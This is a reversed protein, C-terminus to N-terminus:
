DFVYQKINSYTSKCESSTLEIEEAHLEINIHQKTKLKSLLVITEVHSAWPFLDAIKKTNVLIKSSVCVM